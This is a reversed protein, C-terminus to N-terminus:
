IPMNLDILLFDIPENLNEQCYNELLLGNLCDALVEVGNDNLIHVCAMLQFPNDNAIACIYEINGRDQTFNQIEPIPRQAM